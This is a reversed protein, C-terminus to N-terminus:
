PFTKEVRSAWRIMQIALDHDEGDRDLIQDIEWWWRPAEPHPGSVYVRGLGFASRAAAVKGNQYLAMVEVQSPLDYLYPGGEFYIARPQGNWTIEEISYELDPRAPPPELPATKGPLVSYGPFGSTGIQNTSIFAGACFGVYGGGSFVYNVLANRLVPHMVRYVEKSKGGPQIWVGVGDFFHKVEDSSSNFNLDNPGVYVPRLGALYAMEAASKACDEPCAGEGDYVYAVPRSVAAFSSVSWFFASMILINLVKLFQFDFRM